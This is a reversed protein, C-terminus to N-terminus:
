MFFHYNNAADFYYDFEFTAYNRKKTQLYNKSM